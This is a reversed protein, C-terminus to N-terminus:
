VLVVNLHQLVPGVRGINELVDLRKIHAKNRAGNCSLVDSEQEQDNYLHRLSQGDRMLIVQSM